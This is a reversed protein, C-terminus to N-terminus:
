NRLGELGSAPFRETDWFGVKTCSFCLKFLCLYDWFVSTSVRISSITNIWRACIRYHEWVLPFILFPFSLRRPRYRRGWPNSRESFLTLWSAPYISSPLILDSLLFFVFILSLEFTVQKAWHYSSGTCMGWAVWVYSAQLQTTGPSSCQLDLVWSPCTPLLSKVASIIVKRGVQLSLSVLASPLEWRVSCGHSVM